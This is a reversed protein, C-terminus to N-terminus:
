CINKAPLTVVFTTGTVGADENKLYIDGGHSRIIQKCLSLGVGNGQEKTSFFPVFIRDRIDVAIGQGNDKVLILLDDDIRSEINVTVTGAAPRADLANKILNIFLQELLDPDALICLSQNLPAINLVLSETQLKETFLKKLRQLFDDLDIERFEPVPVKSLRRYANIFNIIGNGRDEIIDLAETLDRSLGNGEQEMSNALSKATGALSVIPTLSNMVEHTLVSILKQWANYEQEELEVGIHQLSLLTFQGSKTRFASTKVALQLLNENRYLKILTKEGPKLQLLKEGLGNSIKDLAHINVLHVMGLIKQAEENFMSVNGSKDITILGVGARQTLMDLFLHKEEESLRLEQFKKLIAAYVQEPREGSREKVTGAFHQSFDNHVVASLFRNLRRDSEHLFHLLDWLQLAIVATLVIANYYLNTKFLLFALLCLSGFLLVVRLILSFSYKKFGM